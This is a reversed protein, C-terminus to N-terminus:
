IRPPFKFILPLFRFSCSRDPAPACRACCRAAISLWGAGATRGSGTHACGSFGRRAGSRWRPWSGEGTRSADARPPPRACRSRSRGNGPAPPSAAPGPCRARCRRRRDTRPRFGPVACRRCCFWRILRSRNGSRRCVPAPSRHIQSQNQHHRFRPPPTSVYSMLSSSGGAGGSSGVDLGPSM